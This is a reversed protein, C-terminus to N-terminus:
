VGGLTEFFIVSSPRSTLTSKKAITTASRVVVETTIRTAIIGIEDREGVLLTAKDERVM